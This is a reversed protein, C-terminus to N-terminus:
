YLYLNHVLQLLREYKENDWFKLIHEYEKDSIKKSM